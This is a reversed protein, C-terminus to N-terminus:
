RAARASDDSAVFSRLLAEFIRVAQPGRTRNVKLLELAMQWRDSCILHTAASGHEGVAYLLQARAIEQDTSITFSSEDWAEKARLDNRELQPAPIATVARCTFPLYQSDGLALEVTTVFTALVRPQHKFLLRCTLDFFPYTQCVGSQRERRCFLLYEGFIGKQAELGNWHSSHSTDDNVTELYPLVAKLIVHAEPSSELSLDTSLAMEWVTGTAHIRSDLLTNVSENGLGFEMAERVNDALLQDKM